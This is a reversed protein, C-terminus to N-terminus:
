ERREYKGKYTIKPYCYMMFCIGCFIMLCILSVALGTSFASNKYSFCVTHEGETLLVGVMVDGVLSIEAEEGDVTVTWNGNQPISTYLLGDRNCSVTGEVKTDSFGTINLTSDSLIEYGKRFVEDNLVAGRITISGRSNASCNVQIEVIDGPEVQSVSITQPLAISESYLCQGNKWVSYSNRASMSMDLCMFGAQSIEYTYYLTSRSSGASYYCYGTAENQSNLTTNAGDITLEESTTLIWVDEAIGTAATFLDNQFYFANGLSAFDKELLNRDALFGLPLYANNELLSVNNQQYVVDFYNNEELQGERDIMYKLNLFLNAVPSSEEYCYRNYNNQAAYGMSKMFETVKV